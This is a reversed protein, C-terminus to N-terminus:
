SRFSLSGDRVLSADYQFFTTGLQRRIINTVLHAREYCKAEAISHLDTAQSLRPSINGNALLVSDGRGLRQKLAERIVNDLTFM